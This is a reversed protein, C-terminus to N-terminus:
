LSGRSQASRAQFSDADGQPFFFVCLQDQAFAIHVLHLLKDRPQMLHAHHPQVYGIQQRLVLSGLVEDDIRQVAVLCYSFFAVQPQLGAQPVLQLHLHGIYLQFRLPSTVEYLISGCENARVPMHRGAVSECVRAHLIDKPAPLLHPGPIVAVYIRLRQLLNPVIWLIKIQPYLVVGVPEWGAGVAVQDIAAVINRVPWYGDQPSQRHVLPKISHTQFPLRGSAIFAYEATAKNLRKTL